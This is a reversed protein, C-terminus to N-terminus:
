KLIKNNKKKRERKKIAFITSIGAFHPSVKKKIEVRTSFRYSKRLNCM